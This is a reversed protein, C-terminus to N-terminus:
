IPKNENKVGIQSTGIFVLWSVFLILLWKLNFNVISAMIFMWVQYFLLPHGAYFIPFVLFIITARIARRIRNNKLKSCVRWIAIAIVVSFLILWINNEFFSSM